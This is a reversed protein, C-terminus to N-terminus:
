DDDLRRGIEAKIVRVIGKRSEGPTFPVNFQLPSVRPLDFYIIQQGTDRDRVIGYRYPDDHRSLELLAAKILEYAEDNNQVHQQGEM